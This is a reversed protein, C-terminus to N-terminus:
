RNNLYWQKIEAKSTLSAPPGDTGTETVTRGPVKTNNNKLGDRTIGDRFETMAKIAADVNTNTKDMDESVFYDLLSDPLDATKFKQRADDKNKNLLVSRKEADREAKIADMEKKMNEMEIQHPTKQSRNEIEKAVLDPMKDAKFSNVAQSKVGNLYQLGDKSALYEKIVADRDVNSPEASNDTGDVKVENTEESM